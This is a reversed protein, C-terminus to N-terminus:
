LVCCDSCLLASSISLLSCRPCWKGVLPLRGLAQVGCNQFFCSICPLRGEISTMTLLLVQFLKLLVDTRKATAPGSQTRDGFMMASVVLLLLRKEKRCSAGPGDETRELEWVRHQPRAAATGWLCCLVLGFSTRSSGGKWSNGGAASHQSAEVNWCLYSKYIKVIVSPVLFISVKSFFLWFEGSCPGCAESKLQAVSM